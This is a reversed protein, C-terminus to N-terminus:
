ERTADRMSALLAERARALRSKVTGDNLGLRLGIERYDLGEWERLVFVIRQGEPLGSLAKRFAAMEEASEAKEGPGKGRSAIRDGVTEETDPGLPTELSVEPRRRRVRVRDIILNRTIRFLWRLLSTEGRFSGLGRWARIFAEQVVDCADDTNGLEGLAYRYLAAHNALYIERFAEQDGAQARVVTEDAGVM